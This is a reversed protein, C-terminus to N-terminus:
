LVALRAEDNRRACLGPGNRTGVWLRCMSRIQAAICEEDQAPICVDRIIRMEKRSEGAMAFGRNYGLDKLAAKTGPRLTDFGSGFARRTKASYAPLTSQLFVTEAMPYPTIIDRNVNRYKQCKAEGAQGSAPLIRELQPHMSWANAIVQRTQHGDDWGVGRTPGSAGGPCIVGQYKRTYIAPSTIEWRTIIKAALKDSEDVAAAPKAPAPLMAQIEGRIAVIDPIVNTALQSPANEAAVVQCASLACALLICHIFTISRDM